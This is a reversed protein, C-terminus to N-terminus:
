GDSCFREISCRTKLKRSEHVRLIISFANSIHGISLRGITAEVFFTTKIM